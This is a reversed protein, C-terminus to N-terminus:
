AADGHPNPGETQPTTLVVLVPPTDADGTVWMLAATLGLYFNRVRTVSKRDAANATQADEDLVTPLSTDDLVQGLGTLVGELYDSPHLDYQACAEAFVDRVTASSAPRGM